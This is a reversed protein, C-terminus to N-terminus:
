PEGVVARCCAQCPVYIWPAVQRVHLQLIVTCIAAQLCAPAFSRKPLTTGKGTRRQSKRIGKPYQEPM